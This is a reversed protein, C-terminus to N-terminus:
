NFCFWDILCVFLEQGGGGVGNQTQHLGTQSQIGSGRAEGEWSRLNFANEVVGVYYKVKLVLIKLKSNTTEINLFFIQFYM